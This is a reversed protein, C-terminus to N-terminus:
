VIGAIFLMGIDTTMLTKLPWANRDSRNLANKALGVM